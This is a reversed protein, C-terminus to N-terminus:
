SCAFINRWNHVHICHINAHLFLFASKQMNQLLCSTIYISDKHHTFIIFSPSSFYGPDARSWRIQCVMM